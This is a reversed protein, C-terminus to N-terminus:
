KIKKKNKERFKKLQVLEWGALSVRFLICKPPFPGFVDQFIKVYTFCIDEMTTKLITGKFKLM